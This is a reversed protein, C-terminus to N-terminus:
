PLFKRPPYTSLGKKIDFLPHWGLASIKSVDAVIADSFSSERINGMIKPASGFAGLVHDRLESLRVGQGSGVNYIGPHGREALLLFARALDEAHIYDRVALPHKLASEKGELANRILFSILRDPHESPGYPYFIRGWLLEFGMKMSEEELATRLLNKERGYLTSPAAEEDERLPHDSPGYEACTGAVVFRRTGMAALKRIMALSWERHLVNEPSELYVGPTAIWACHICVGPNFAAIEEWPPDAMRFPKKLGMVEHGLSHAQRLIVGGIFGDQGTLFIRM